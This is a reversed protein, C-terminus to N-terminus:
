SVPIFSLSDLSVCRIYLVICIYRVGFLANLEKETTPKFTRCAQLASVLGSMSELCDKHVSLAQTGLRDVLKGFPEAILTFLNGSWQGRVLIAKLLIHLSSILKSSPHAPDDRIETVASLSQALAPGLIGIAQATSTKVHYVHYAVANVFKTGSLSLVDGGPDEGDLSFHDQVTKCCEKYKAEKLLKHILTSSLVAKSSSM